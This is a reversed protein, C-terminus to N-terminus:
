VIQIKKKLYLSMVIDVTEDRYESAEMQEILVNEKLMGQSYIQMILRQRNSSGLWQKEPHLEKERLQILEALSLYIGAEKLWCLIEKEKEELKHNSLLLKRNLKLNCKSLIQYRGLSGEDEDSVALGEKVLYSLGVLEKEVRVTSFGIKGRQWLLADRGKVIVKENDRAIEINGNQFCKLLVGRSLFLM